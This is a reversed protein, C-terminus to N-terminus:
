EPGTGETGTTTSIQVPGTTTVKQVWPQQDPLQGPWEGPRVARGAWREFESLPAEQLMDAPFDDTRLECGDFWMVACEHARLGSHRAAVTMRPGGSKLQVVSGTKFQSM